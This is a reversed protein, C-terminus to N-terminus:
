KHNGVPQEGPEVPIQFKLQVAVDKGNDTLEWVKIDTCGETELKDIIRALTEAQVSNV